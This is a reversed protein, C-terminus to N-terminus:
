RTSPSFNSPPWVHVRNSSQPLITRRPHIFSRADRLFFFSSPPPCLSLSCASMELGILVLIANGKLLFPSGVHSCLHTMPPRSGARFDSFNVSFFTLPQLCWRPPSPSRRSPFSVKKPLGAYFIGTKVSFLSPPLGFTSRIMDYLCSGLLFLGASRPFHDYLFFFSKRDNHYPRRRSRHASVVLFRM